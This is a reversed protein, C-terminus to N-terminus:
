PDCHWLFCFSSDLQVIYDRRIMMTLYYYYFLLFSFVLFFFISLFIDLDNINEGSLPYYYLQNSVSDLYWEGPYDIYEYANEIDQQENFM